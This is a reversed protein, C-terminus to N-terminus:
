FKAVRLTPMARVAITLDEIGTDIDRQVALQQEAIRVVPNRAENTARAVASVAERTRADLAGASSAAQSQSQEDVLKKWDPREVDKPDEKGRGTSSMIDDLEQSMGSAFMQGGGMIDDLLPQVADTGIGTAIDAALGSAAAELQTELESKIRDPIEIMEMAQAEFGETLSRLNLNVADTGASSIFEWTEEFVRKINHAMNEFVTATFSAMNEFQLRTNTALGHIVASVQDNLVYWVIGGAKVFALEILTGALQAATGIHKFVSAIVEGTMKFVVSNGAMIGTQQMLAESVTNITPLLVYGMNEAVEGLINKLKTWPDLVAQAAGGFKRQLEALILAQAGAVDGAENMVRIQEKQQETFTIGLRTLRTLGTAPDNLAKGLMLSASSLDTGLVTSLDQAATLTDTFTTGSIQGFSALISAAGITADDDFNTLGMRAEAYDQIQQSSMGAAHGSANLVAALKREGAIAERAGTIASRAAFIGAFVGTIPGLAGMIARSGAVVTATLGKMATQGVRAGAVFGSSNMLLRTVIDNAM